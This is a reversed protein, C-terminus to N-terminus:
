AYMGIMFSILWAVVMVGLVGMLCYNIVDEKITSKRKVRYIHRQNEAIKAIWKKLDTSDKTKPKNNVSNGEPVKNFPDLIIDRAGGLTVTDASMNRYGPFYLQNGFFHKWGRVLEGAKKEVLCSFELERKIFKFANDDRFYLQTKYEKSSFVGM